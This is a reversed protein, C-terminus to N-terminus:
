DWREGGTLILLLSLKVPHNSNRLVPNKRGSNETNEQFVYINNKQVCLSTISREKITYNNRPYKILKKM